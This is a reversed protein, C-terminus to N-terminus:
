FPLPDWLRNFRLLTDHGGLDAIDASCLAPHPGHRRDRVTRCDGHNLRNRSDRQSLLLRASREAAALLEEDLVNARVEPNHPPATLPKERDGLEPPRDILHGLVHESGRTSVARDAHLKGSTVVVLIERRFGIGSSRPSSAAPTRDSM